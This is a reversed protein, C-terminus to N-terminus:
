WNDRKSSQERKVTEEIDKYLGQESNSVVALDVGAVSRVSPIRVLRTQRTQPVYTIPKEKFIRFLKEGDDWLGYMEVGLTHNGAAIGRMDFVTSFASEDTALAGQLLRILVSSVPQNDFWLDAKLRSFAKGAPLKFSVELTVEDEKTQTEMQTITIPDEQPQKIIELADKPRLDPLNDLTSQKLAKSNQPM